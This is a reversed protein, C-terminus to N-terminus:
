IDIRNDVAFGACAAPYDHVAVSQMAPITHLMSAVSM